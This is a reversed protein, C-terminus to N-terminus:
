APCPAPVPSLPVFRKLKGTDQRPICNVEAISVEPRPIARALGTLIEARLAATDLPGATRVLVDAGSPTQRVQYEVVHRERSLPSRFVHPHITVGDYNFSDDLRGEVDAVLRFPSGCPCQGDLLTIEDTLEYRILPFAHNYLNTLLVKDSREGNPVARDAGDVPEVIVLDDTLHMWPGEGCGIALSFAESACWWNCVPVGFTEELCARIEPLLPEAFTIVRRPSIRLDGTGVARALSFLVSSYGSLITPQLLNLKDVTEETPRGIPFRHLSFAASSFSRFIASSAHTPPGAAIVAMTVPDGATLDRVFHRVEHRILAAYSVSWADWDYVFVGRRGSSGGSAVAHYRDLLYADGRLQDLHAEIMDLDLRPDTVIEDFHEM